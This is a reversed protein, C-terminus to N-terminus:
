FHPSSGQLTAPETVEELIGVSLRVQAIRGGLVPLLLEPKRSILTHYLASIVQIEMEAGLDAGGAEMEGVALVM